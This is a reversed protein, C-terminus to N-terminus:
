VYTRLNVREFHLIDGILADPYRAAKRPDIVPVVTVSFADKGPPLRRVADTVIVRMTVPTLAHEARLDFPRSPGTPVECHGADGACGGHGFVWYSGAYGSAPEKATEVSAEPNDFFIRGEYSARGHDVRHVELDARRFGPPPVPLMVTMPNAVFTGM